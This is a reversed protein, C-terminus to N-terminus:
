VFEASRNIVRLNSYHFLKGFNFKTLANEHLGAADFQSFDSFENLERKTGERIVWTRLAYDIEDQALENFFFRIERQENSTLHAEDPLVQFASKKAKMFDFNFEGTLEETFNLPNFKRLKSFRIAQGVYDEMLNTLASKEKLYVM